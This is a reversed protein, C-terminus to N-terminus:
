LKRHHYDGGSTKNEVITASPHVVSILHFPFPVHSRCVAVPVMGIWHALVLWSQNEPLQGFPTIEAADM